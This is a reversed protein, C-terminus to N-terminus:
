FLADPEPATTPQSVLLPQASHLSLRLSLGSHDTLRTQTRPEHVDACGAVEGELVASVFAHDYRYGDGTRGVWSYEAATPLRLRFADHYGAKGLWRRHAECM